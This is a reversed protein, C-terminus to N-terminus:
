ALKTKFNTDPDLTVIDGDLNDMDIDVGLVTIEVVTQRTVDMYINIHQVGKIDNGTEKDIVQTTEPTGDSIIKLRISM